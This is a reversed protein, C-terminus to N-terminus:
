AEARPYTAVAVFADAEDGGIVAEKGITVWVHAELSDDEQTKMGYHLIANMGAARLMRQAVLGKQICVIRWPLRRAVAEIAWIVDEVDALKTRGVPVSGFRIASRFPLVAVILSARSLLAAATLLM